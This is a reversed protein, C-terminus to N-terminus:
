TQVEFREALPSGPPRAMHYVTLASLLLLIAGANHGAAIALPLGLLVNAIGLFAQATAVVLLMAGAVKLRGAGASVFIRVTLAIVYFLTLVAGLRHALHITVGPM